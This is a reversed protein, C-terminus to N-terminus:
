YFVGSLAFRFVSGFLVPSAMIPINLEGGCLVLHGVITQVNPLILIM